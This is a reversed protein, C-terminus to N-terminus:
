IPFSLVKVSYPLPSKALLNSSLFNDVIIAAVAAATVVADLSSPHISMAFLAYLKLLAETSKTAEKLILLKVHTLTITSYHSSSASSSPQSEM